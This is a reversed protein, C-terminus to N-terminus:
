RMIGSDQLITEVSVEVAAEAFVEAWRDQVPKWEKYTYARAYLGFGFPDVRWKQAKQIVRELQNKMEENIM